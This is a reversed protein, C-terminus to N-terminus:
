NTWSPELSLKDHYSNINISASNFKHNIIVVPKWGILDSPISFSNKSSLSLIGELSRDCVIPSSILDENLWVESGADEDEDVDVDDDDFVVM